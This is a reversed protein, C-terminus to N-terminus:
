SGEILRADFEKLCNYIEDLNTHLESFFNSEFRGQANIRPVDLYVNDSNNQMIYIISPEALVIFQESRYNKVYEILQRNSGVFDAYELVRESCEPHAIIIATPHGAKVKILSAESFNAHFDKYNLVGTIPKAFRKSFYRGLNKSGILLIEDFSDCEDLIQEINSITFVHNAITKLSNSSNLHALIGINALKKKSQLFDVIKAEDLQYYSCQRPIIINRDPFFKNILEAVKITTALLINNNEITEIYRIIEATSGIFDVIDIVESDQFHHSILKANLKTKLKLIDEEINSIHTIYHKM